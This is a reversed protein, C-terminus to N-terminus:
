PLQPQFFLSISVILNAISCVIVIGDDKESITIEGERTTFQIRDNLGETSTTLTLKFSESRELSTDNTLIIDICKRIEDGFTMWSIPLTYDDKDLFLIMSNIQFSM